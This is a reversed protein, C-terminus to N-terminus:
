SRREQSTLAKAADLAAQHDLEPRDTSLGLYLPHGSPDHFMVGGALFCFRTDKIATVLGDEGAFEVTNRQFAYATLAKAHALTESAALITDSRFFMLEEGESNLLCCCYRSNLNTLISHATGIRNYLPNM